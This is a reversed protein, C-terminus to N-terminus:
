FDLVLPYGLHREVNASFSWKWRRLSLLTLLLVCECCIWLSTKKTVYDLTVKSSLECFCKNGLLFYFFIYYYHICVLVRRRRLRCWRRYHMRRHRWQRVKQPCPSALSFSPVGGDIGEWITFLKVERMRGVLNMWEWAGKWRERKRWLCWRPTEFNQKKIVPNQNKVMSPIHQPTFKLKERERERERNNSYVDMNTRVRCWTLGKFIKFM